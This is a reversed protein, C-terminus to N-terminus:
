RDMFHKESDIQLALLRYQSALHEVFDELIQVILISKAALLLALLLGAYGTPM